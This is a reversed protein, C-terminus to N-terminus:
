TMLDTQPHKAMSFTLTMDLLPMLDEWFHGCFHPDHDSTISELLGHQSVVMSIFKDSITCADSEQLLVLQVMKSFRNICTMVLTHGEDEPLESM